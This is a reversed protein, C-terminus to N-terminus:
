YSKWIQQNFLGQSNTFLNRKIKYYRCEWKGQIGTNNIVIGHHSKVREIDRIIDDKSLDYQKLLAGLTRYARNDASIPIGAKGVFHRTNRRTLKVLKWKFQTM